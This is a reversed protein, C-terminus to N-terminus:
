LPVRGALGRAVPDQHRFPPRRRISSPNTAKAGRRRNPSSTLRAPRPGILVLM